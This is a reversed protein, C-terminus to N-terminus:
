KSNDNNALVLYKQLYKNKGRSSAFARTSYATQRTRITVSHNMFECIAALLEYWEIRRRLTGTIMEFAGAAGTPQVM